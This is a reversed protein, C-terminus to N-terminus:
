CFISSLLACVHHVDVPSTMKQTMVREVTRVIIQLMVAVPAKQVIIVLSVLHVDLDFLIFFYMFLDAAQSWWYYNYLWDRM